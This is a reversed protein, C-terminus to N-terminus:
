AEDSSEEDEFPECHGCQYCRSVQSTFTQWDWPATEVAMAVGCCELAEENSNM